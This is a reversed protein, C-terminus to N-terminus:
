TAVKGANGSRNLAQAFSGAKSAFAACGHAKIAPSRGAGSTSKKNNSQWAARHMERRWLVISAELDQKISVYAILGRLGTYETRQALLTRYLQTLASLIDSAIRRREAPRLRRFQETPASQPRPIM